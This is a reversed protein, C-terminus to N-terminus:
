INKYKEYIEDFMKWSVELGRYAILFQTTKSIRPQRRTKELARYFDYTTMQYNIEVNLIFTRQEKDWTKNQIYVQVMSEGELFSDVICNAYVTYSDEYEWSDMFTGKEVTVPYGVKTCSFSFCAILLITLIRKM